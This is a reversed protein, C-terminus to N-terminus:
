DTQQWFSCEGRDKLGRFWFRVHIIQVGLLWFLRLYQCCMLLLWFCKVQCGPELKLKYVFRFRMLLVLFFQVSSRKVRGGVQSFLWRLVYGAEAM